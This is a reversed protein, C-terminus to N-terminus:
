NKSLIEAVKDVVDKVTQIETTEEAPFRIGFVKEFDQLLDATDLSDAGLDNIFNANETVVSPEVALKDVIIEQVKKAIENYEM